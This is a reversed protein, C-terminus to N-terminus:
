KARPPITSGGTPMSTVTVAYLSIRAWGAAPYPMGALGGLVIVAGETLGTIQDAPIKVSRRVPAAGDADITIPLWFAAQDPVAPHPVPADDKTAPEPLGAVSVTVGAVDLPFFDQWPQKTRNNM